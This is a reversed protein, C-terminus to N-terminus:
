TTVQYHFTAPKGIVGTSSLIWVRVYVWSGVPYTGNAVRGFKSWTTVAGFTAFENGAGAPNFKHFHSENKPTWEYDLPGQVYVEVRRNTMLDGPGAGAAFYKGSGPSWRFSTLSTASGPASGGPATSRPTQSGLTYMVYLARYWEFPNKYGDGGLSVTETDPLADGWTAKNASSLAAWASIAAANAERTAVQASTPAPAATRGRQFIQLGNGTRFYM